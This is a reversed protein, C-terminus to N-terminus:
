KGDWYLVGGRLEVNATAALVPLAVKYNVDFVRLQPLRVGAPAPPPAVAYFDIAHQLFPLVPFAPQVSPVLNLADVYTWPHAPDAVLQTTFSFIRPTPNEIVFRLLVTDRQVSPVVVVRPDALPLTVDWAPPRLTAVGRGPGASADASGHPDSDIAVLSTDGAVGGSADGTAESDEVNSAGPAEGAEPAEGSESAEPAEGSKSAEPAEGSESAEPAEGSKSAEPAEGTKSAEPAEGSESAEPAEGTKSAEPAEGTKSAKPAETAETVEIAGSAKSARRWRVAAEASVVVNRHAGTKSRTTFRVEGGVGLAEVFVEPSMLKISVAVDVVEVLAHPVVRVSGVWVRTAVPMSAASEGAVFPNPMTGLRPAIRFTCALPTPMVKLEYRALEVPAAAAEGRPLLRAVVVLKDAGIEVSPPAEILVNLWRTHAGIPPVAMPEDDKLDDWSSRVVARLAGEVRADCAVVLAGYDVGRKSKVVVEVALRLREGMFIADPLHAALHVEPQVPAVEIVHPPEGNLRVQRSGGAGYLREHHPLAADDFRVVEAHAASGGDWRLTAEVGVLRVGCRGVKTAEQHLQVVVGDAGVAAAFQGEAPEGDGEVGVLSVLGFSTDVELRKVVLLVKTQLLRELKALDVAPRLRLQVVCQHYLSTAHAGSADVVLAAVRVLARGVDFAGAAARATRVVRDPHAAAALAAEL